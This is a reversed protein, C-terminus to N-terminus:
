DPEGNNEHGNSTTSAAKRLELVVREAAAHFRGSDNLLGWYEEASIAGANVQKSAFTELRWPDPNPDDFDFDIGGSDIGLTLDVGVGHTRYYWCTGPIRHRGRHPSSLMERASTLNFSQCLLTEAWARTAHWLPLLAAVLVRDHELTSEADNSDATVM